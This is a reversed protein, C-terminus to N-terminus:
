PTVTYTVGVVDGRVAWQVGDCYALLHAGVRQGATSVAVSKAAADGLVLLTDPALSKVTVTFDTVCLFEYWSGILGAPDPLTFVVARSVDRNTFVTGSPDASAVITYDSTKAKQYRRAGGGADLVGVAILHRVVDDNNLFAM